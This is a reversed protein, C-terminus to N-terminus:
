RTDTPQGPFLVTGDPRRITEPEIVPQGFQRYEEVAAAELDDWTVPHGAARAQLAEYLDMGANVHTSPHHICVILRDPSGYLEVADSLWWYRVPYGLRRAQEILTSVDHQRTLANDFVYGAYFHNPSLVERAAQGSSDPSGLPEVDKM